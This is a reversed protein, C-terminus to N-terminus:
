AKWDIAIGMSFERRHLLLNDYAQPADPYKITHTILSAINLKGTKLAKLTNQFREPCYGAPNYITVEKMSFPNLNVKHEIPYFGNLVYHGNWALIDYAIASNEPLGIAEVAIQVGDPAIKAVEAKLDQTATDVIMDCSYKQAYELRQKDGKGAIIVYAGRARLTQAVFQGILGDGIVVALDGVQVPPRSGGNFGVQAVVLFAAEKFSVEDPLKYVAESANISKSCHGGWYFSPVEVFRSNCAFVRDGVKLSTVKNGVAIVTGAHQYGPVFPFTYLDKEYHFMGTLCWRETGPSIASYAVDIMVEHDAMEALTLEQVAVKSNDTFVVAHAKM